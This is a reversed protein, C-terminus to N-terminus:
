LLPNEGDLYLLIVQWAGIAQISTTFTYHCFDPPLLSLDAISNVILTPSLLFFEASSYM